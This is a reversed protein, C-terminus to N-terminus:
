LNRGARKGGLRGPRDAAHRPRRDHLSLRPLLAHLHRRKRLPWPTRALRPARRYAEKEYLGGNAVTDSLRIKVGAIVDRNEAIARAAGEVSAFKLSELEGPVRDDGGFGAGALGISSINLFALV